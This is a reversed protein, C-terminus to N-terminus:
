VDRTRSQTKVPVLRQLTLGGLILVLGIWTTVYIDEGVFIHVFWLSLFPAIFILNSVKSTNDALKLAYSWTVFAIGMEFCGIYICGAIGYISVATVSSFLFCALLIMPLAYLFNLFLGVVPDRDDKINYIWYIAWIITSLLALAVGLTQSTQFGTLSGQLSIVLVGSYCVLGAIIDRASIKQKLIFISLVTLTIAWTYNIPQAVQAPLLDYATFLILYYLFPNLLGAIVSRQHQSRSLSRLQGVRGQLLLIIFLVIVSTLCAFLLMQFVDLHALTLKFATAVTSWFLVTVLGFVFGRQNSTM